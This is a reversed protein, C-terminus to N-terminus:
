IIIAMNDDSGMKLNYRFLIPAKYTDQLEAALDPNTSIEDCHIWWLFQM